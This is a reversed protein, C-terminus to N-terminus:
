EAGKYVYDISILKDTKDTKDHYWIVTDGCMNDGLRIDSTNNDEEVVKKIKLLLEYDM